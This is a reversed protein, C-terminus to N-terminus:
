ASASSLADAPRAHNLITAVLKKRDIPKSAYDDCGADLCKQRDAAMAHATLAIIPRAYGRARLKRTAQYGDLVPMQMDMLIVDFANGDREAKLATESAIEGNEAIVVEAGLKRLVMSILKQNDPGDEALLIRLKLSVTSQTADIATGSSASQRTATADILSERAIFGTPFIARFRTGVGPESRVIFLDGGLMRALRRSITLGLGTGGFRRAMSSDAQTFPKFLRSAQATSMGIGTDVVDIEIQPAAGDRFAVSIAVHGRETFKISNSLLNMLVQRLRTPDTEIRAPVLGTFELTLAVGKAQARSRLMDVSDNILEILSTQLTEVTMHGAEIKSLDLIDNIIQLLHDGNRKITHILDLRDQPSTQHSEAEVLEDAFGLIATMPTRIEHSMNALFQSKADAAALAQRRALDLDARQVELKRNAEELQVRREQLQQENRSREALQARLMTVVVATSGILLQIFGIQGMVTMRVRQIAAIWEGAPYDVGLVAYVRGNSDLMPVYATVWVGWRDQYPQDDFAATGNFVKRLTDDADYPEGIATRSERDGDIEGDHNYDTESDVLLVIAGDTKQGFTYIDAVAPNVRQWLIEAEILDLYTPDDGPTDPTIREHGLRHLEQAYTPALGEVMRRLRSRENNGAADVWWWGAAFLSMIMLATPPSLSGANKRRLLRQAALYVLMGAIVFAIYDLQQLSSIPM